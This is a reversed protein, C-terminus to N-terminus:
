VKQISVNSFSNMNTLLFIPKYRSTSIQASTEFHFFQYERIDHPFALLLEFKKMEWSEDGETFNQAIYEKGQRNEAGKTLFFFGKQM